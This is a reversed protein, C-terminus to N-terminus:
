MKCAEQFKAEADDLEVKCEPDEASSLRNQISSLLRLAM